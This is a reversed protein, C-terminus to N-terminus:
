AMDERHNTWFLGLMKGQKRTQNASRFHRCRGLRPWGDHLKGGARRRWQQWGTVSREVDQFRREAGWTFVFADARKFELAPIVYSFFSPFPFDNQPAGMYSKRFIKPPSEGKGWKDLNSVTFISSYKVGEKQSRWIHFGRAMKGCRRWNSSALNLRHLIGRAGAATTNNNNMRLATTAWTPSPTTRLTSPPAPFSAKQSAPTLPQSTHLLVKWIVVM